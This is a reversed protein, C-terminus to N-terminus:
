DETPEMTELDIKKGNMFWEDADTGLKHGRPQLGRDLRQVPFINWSGATWVTLKPDAKGCTYAGVMRLQGGPQMMFLPRTAVPETPDWVVLLNADNDNSADLRQVCLYGYADLRSETMASGSRAIVTRRGLAARAHLVAVGHAM